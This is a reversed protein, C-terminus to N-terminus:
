PVEEEMQHQRWAVEEELDKIRDLKHQYEEELNTADLWIDRVLIAIERDEEYFDCYLEYLRKSLTM